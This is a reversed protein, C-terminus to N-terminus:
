LIGSLAGKRELWVLPAWCCKRSQHHLHELDSAAVRGPLNDLTHFTASAALSGPQLQRLWTHSTAAKQLLFAGFSGNSSEYTVSTNIAIAYIYAPVLGHTGM